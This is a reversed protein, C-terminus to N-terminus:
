KNPKLPEWKVLMSTRDLLFFFYNVELFLSAFSLFNMFLNFVKISETNRIKRRRTEGFYVQILFLQRLILSFCLFGMLFAGIKYQVIIVARCIVTRFSIALLRREWQLGWNRGGRYHDGFCSLSLGQKSSCIFSTSEGALELNSGEGGNNQVWSQLNIRM